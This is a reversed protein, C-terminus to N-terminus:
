KLVGIANLMMGFALNWIGALSMRTSELLVKGLSREKPLLLEASQRSCECIASAILLKKRLLSNKRFIKSYADAYKLLDLNIKEPEDIKYFDLAQLYMKIQEKGPKKESYKMVYNLIKWSEKEIKENKYKYELEEIGAKLQRPNFNFDRIAREPYFEINQTSGLINSKTIIPKRTMRFGSAILMGFFVPIHVINAKKNYIRECILGVLENFSVKEKGGIDYTKNWMKEKKMGLLIFEALDDSHIPWFASNGSGIIPIIPLKSFKVISGFVGNELDGYVVSPKFTLYNLGSDEIIKDALHKTKAYVGKEKIKTSATSINVILKIKNKKCANVLNKAGEVNVRFSDKEDSKRAALHIVADVGNLKKEFNSSAINIKEREIGKRQIKRSHSLALVSYGKRVLLEIVARGIFGSAGTVAVKKMSLM